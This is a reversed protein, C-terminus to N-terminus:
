ILQFRYHQQLKLYKIICLYTSHIFSMIINEETTVATDFYPWLITIIALPSSYYPRSSTCLFVFDFSLYRFINDQFIQRITISRIRDM